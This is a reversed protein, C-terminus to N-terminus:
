RRSFYFCGDLPHLLSTKRDRSEGGEQLLPYSLLQYMQVYHEMESNLAFFQL